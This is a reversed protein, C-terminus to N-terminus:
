WSLHARIPTMETAIDYFIGGFAGFYLNVQTQMDTNPRVWNKFAKWFLRELWKDILLIRETQRIQPTLTKQFLFNLFKRLKELTPLREM